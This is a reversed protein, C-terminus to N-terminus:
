ELVEMAYLDGIRNEDYGLVGSLVEYTDQGLQPAPREVRAPTRGLRFRSGEVTVPGFAPHELDVFHKRYVLQPDKWCQASNHVAHAPVGASQCRQTADDPSLTMTWTEVLKNLEDARSIRGAGTQLDPDGALDDRGLLSALARWQADTPCAIAVWEDEGNCAYVGHPSMHPDANGLREFARGNVTYDLIAPTLFHIAAEAQSLDIYQGVGMRRRYDLAALLAAVGYRPSVYDTYAGFPGAPPRDPWGTTNFFGTIAAALNGYGAFEALPGTQGMLCSSLMVIRPNVERLHQYDLGWERMARPSFSETVVDAWRVLDHIVERAEPKAMNIALGLKGANLNFFLGSREPDVVDELFPNITRATEVRTGSELRVITAGYDALVRTIAPGAMVWMFDLVRVGALPAQDPSGASAPLAAPARADGRLVAGTHEGLRPARALRRLGEASAKAFPGPCRVPRSSIAADEIEDWYDRSALHSSTVVDEITAVPAILLRRELAADLLQAKTKTLTFAEVVKKVREYEEVPEQGSFLLIAYDIWNKDRTAEDCFGEEHIWEMFRRTAPGIATGFLFTISVYGDKCPWTIQVELPGLRVGGALRQPVSSRLPEALVMSQTAQLSSQQASVDVHQGLGSRAREFLALLAGNAADASAHLFAQPLSVRVPPRDADGTIALAMASAWVTLETAAWGAKPGDQGFPTISVYVLAPNVALLDEYGLGLENLEGPDGSEILVDAGGALRKLEARAEVSGALDLVVSKKGRNYAWHSLSTEPGAVGGAFPRLTRSRSGGPPEILIVEAGLSALMTGALQGREDTLDLVRYADLM